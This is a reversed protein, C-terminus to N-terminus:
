WSQDIYHDAEEISTVFENPILANMDVLRTIKRGSALYVRTAHDVEERTVKPKARRPYSLSERRWSHGQTPHYLEGAANLKM